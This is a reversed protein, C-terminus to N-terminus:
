TFNARWRALCCWPSCFSCRCDLTHSFKWLCGRIYSGIAGKLRLAIIPYPFYAFPYAPCLHCCRPRHLASLPLHACHVASHAKSAGAARLIHVRGAFPVFRLCSRSLLHALCLMTGNSAAPMAALLVLIALLYPDSVFLGFVFYVGVPVVILRILTTLYSWGDFLMERVPMKALTSGIILMAAPVTMGGLISCTQGIPGNDTIHLLALAMAAYSALMVPKTLTHGLAKLQMKVSRKERTQEDDGAVFFVGLSFLVVNFVINFVAAYLVANDDFIAALVAFGLFGVNGFMMMFAHAGRAPRNLKRYVLHAVAYSFVAAFLFYLAAYGFMTLIVEDPPLQSDSLVSNLITAPLTISMVLKSLNGDFLDDTMRKKRAIFGCLMIAFLMLMQTFTHQFVEM